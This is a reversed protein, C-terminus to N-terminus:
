IKEILSAFNTMIEELSATIEQRTQNNKITVQGEQVESEGLTIM